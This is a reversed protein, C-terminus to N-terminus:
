SLVVVVTGQVGDSVGIVNYPTDIVVPVEMGALAGIDIEKTFGYRIEAVGVDPQM